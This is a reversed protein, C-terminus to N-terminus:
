PRTKRAFFQVMFLLRSFIKKIDQVYKGYRKAHKLICSFSASLNFFKNIYVSSISM